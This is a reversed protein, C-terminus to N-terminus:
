FIHGNSFKNPSRKSSDAMKFSIFTSDQSKINQIYPVWPTWIQQWFLQLFFFILFQVKQAKFTANKEFNLMNFLFIACGFNDDITDLWHIVILEMFNLKKPAGM